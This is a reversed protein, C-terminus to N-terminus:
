VTFKIIKRKNVVVRVTKSILNCYTFELIIHVSYTGLINYEIVFYVLKLSLLVDFKKM